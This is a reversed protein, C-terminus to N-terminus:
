LLSPAFSKAARDLRRRQGAQSCNPEADGVACLRRAVILPAHDVLTQLGELVDSPQAQDPM